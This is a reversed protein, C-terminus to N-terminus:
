AVARETEGGEAQGSGDGDGAARQGGGRVATAPDAQGADRDGGFVAPVAQGHQHARFQDAPAVVAAGGVGVHLHGGVVRAREREVTIEAEEVMVAVAVGGGSGSRTRSTGFPKGTRRAVQFTLEIRELTSRTVAQSSALSMSTSAMC